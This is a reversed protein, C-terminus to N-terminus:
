QESRTLTRRMRGLARIGETLERLQYDTAKCESIDVAEVGLRIGKLSEIARTLIKDPPPMRLPSRAPVEGGKESTRVKEYAPRVKGTADMEARAAQAMERVEKPAEPDDAAKVVHKARGYGSASMGIADAVASRTEQYTGNGPVSRVEGPRGQRAKAKPRELEELAAGLAVLESPTMDKRCTNEDREAKLLEVADSRDGLVHVPIRTWGLQRCAELRRQGFVLRYTNTVGIPQLLGLSEISAMLDALDDLEARHREGVVIQKIPVATESM